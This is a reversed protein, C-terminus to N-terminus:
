NLAKLKKRNIRTKKMDVQGQAHIVVGYTKKAAHRSVLGNQVDAAVRNPDRELARGFGAGGM